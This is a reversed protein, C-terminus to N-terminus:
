GMFLLKGRIRVVHLHCESLEGLPFISLPPLPLLLLIVAAVFANFHCKQTCIIHVIARIWVIMVQRGRVMGSGNRKRTSGPLQGNVHEDLTGKNILINQLRVRVVVLVVIVVLFLLFLEFVVHVVIVHFRCFGSGSSCRVTPMLGASVIYFTGVCDFHRGVAAIFVVLVVVQSAVPALTLFVFIVFNHTDKM